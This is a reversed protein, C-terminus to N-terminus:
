NWPYKKVLDMPLFSEVNTFYFGDGRVVWECLNGNRNDCISSWNSFFVDFANQKGNWWFHCFYRTTGLMNARFRWSFTQYYYLLHTGLEDDKSACHVKVFLNIPNNIENLIKVKIIGAAM